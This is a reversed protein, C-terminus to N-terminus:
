PTIYTDYSYEPLENFLSLLEMADGDWDDAEIVLEGATEFSRNVFNLLFQRYKERSEMRQGVYGVELTYAEDGEYCCVYAKIQGNEILCVSNKRDLDGLICPAFLEDTYEENLPNIREHKQAYDARIMAVLYVAQQETLDEFATLEMAEGLQQKMNMCNVEEIYCKRVCKFGMDALWQAASINDSDILAQWKEDPYMMQLAAYVARGLGRRRYAEKVSVYLYRRLPHMGNKWTIGAAIAEGANSRVAVFECGKQRYPTDSRAFFPQLEDSYEEKRVIM